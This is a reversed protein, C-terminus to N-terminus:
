YWECDCYFGGEHGQGNVPVSPALRHWEAAIEEDDPEAARGPGKWFTETILMRLCGSDLSKQETRRLANKLVPKESYIITAQKEEAATLFDGMAGDRVFTVPNGEYFAAALLVWLFSGEGQCIMLRDKGHWGTRRRFDEAMVCIERGTWVPHDPSVAANVMLLPEDPLVELPPNGSAYEGEEPISVCLSAGDAEISAVCGSKMIGLMGALFRIGKGGDSVPRIVSGRRIKQRRIRDAMRNAMRNLERWSVSASGGNQWETLAEQDPFRAANIELQVTLSATGKCDAGYEWMLLEGNVERACNPPLLRYFSVPWRAFVFVQRETGGQKLFSQLLPIERKKTAIILLTGSVDPAADEEKLLKQLGSLRGLRLARYIRQADLGSGVVYIREYDGSRRLMATLSGREYWDAKERLGDIDYLGEFQGACRWWRDSGEARLNKWPRVYDRMLFHLIRPTDCSVGPICNYEPPLLRIRGYCVVNLLDQDVVLYDQVGEMLKKQIGDRRMLSLNMLLVGSNIYTEIGPINDGVTQERAPSIDFFVGALYDDTMDTEWLPLLDGVVLTDSDIYLCLEVDPLLMPLILRYCAAKSWLSDKFDRSDFTAESIRHESLNLNEYRDTLSKLLRRDEERFSDDLLLHLRVKQNEPLHEMLSLISVACFFLYSHDSAYVIDLTERM